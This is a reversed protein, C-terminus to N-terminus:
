SLSPVGFEYEVKDGGNTQYCALSNFLSFLDGPLKSKVQGYLTNFETRPMFTLFLKPSQDGALEDSAAKAYTLVLSCFALVDDTVKSQDIGNTNSQFYEQKVVVISDPHRINYGDLINRKNPDIPDDQNEKMLSYLAELPM